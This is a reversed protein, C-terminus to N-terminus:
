SLLIRIKLYGTIDAVKEPIRVATGVMHFLGIEVHAVLRAVICFRWHCMQIGVM